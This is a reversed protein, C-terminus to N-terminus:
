FKWDGTSARGIIEAAGEAMQFTPSLACVVNEIVNRWTGGGVIAVECETVARMSTTRDITEISSM